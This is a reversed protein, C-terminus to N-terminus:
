KSPSPAVRVATPQGPTPQTTAAKLADRVMSLIKQVECTNQADWLAELADSFHYGTGLKLAAAKAAAEQTALAGMVLDEVSEVNDQSFLFATQYANIGTIATTTGLALAATGGTGAGTLAMVGTGLTGVIGIMDKAYLLRQQKVGATKFFQMCNQHNAALGAELLANAKDSNGVNARAAADLFAARFNATVPNDPYPVGLTGGTYVNSTDDPDLIPEPRISCGDLLAALGAVAFIYRPM